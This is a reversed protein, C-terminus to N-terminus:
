NRNAPEDKTTFPHEKGTTAPPELSTVPSMTSKIQSQPEERTTPPMEQTAAHPMERTENHSEELTAAPVQAEEQTATTGARANTM